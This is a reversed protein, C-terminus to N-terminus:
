KVHEHTYLHESCYEYNGNCKSCFRFELDEGDNESRGCIACKHRTISAPKSKIEETKGAGGEVVTFRAKQRDTASKRRMFGSKRNRGRKYRENIIYFLAFNLICAVITVRGTLSPTSVFEYALLILDIYALWKARFPFIMFLLMVADSYIYAYTLFISITMYYTLGGMVMAAGASYNALDQMDQISYFEILGSIVVGLTTFIMGSFIYINYLFTGVAREIANGISYYCFLIILTWFDLSGPVTFIWTFIRWYQHGMFVCLTEYPLYAYVDPAFILLLYGITFAIVIYLTLNPIAYKGFKRELKYLFNM